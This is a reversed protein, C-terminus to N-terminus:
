SPSMVALMVRVIKPSSGGAGFPSFYIRPLISRLGAFLACFSFSDSILLKRNRFRAFQRAQINTIIHHQLWRVALFWLLTKQHIPKTVIENEKDSSQHIRQEDTAGARGKAVIPTSISDSRSAAM